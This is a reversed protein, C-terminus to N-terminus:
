VTLLYYLPSAYIISLLMTRRPASTNSYVLLGTVIALTVLTVAKRMIQRALQRALLRMEVVRDGKLRPNLYQLVFLLISTPLIACRGINLVLDSFGM